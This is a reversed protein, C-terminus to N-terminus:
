KRTYCCHAETFFLFRGVSWGADLGVGRVPAPAFGLHRQRAEGPQARESVCSSARRLLRKKETATEFVTQTMLVDLELVGRGM